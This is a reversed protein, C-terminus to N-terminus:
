TDTRSHRDYLTRRTKKMRVRLSNYRYIGIAQTAIALPVFAWGIIELLLSDFFKIFTVGAVFMTLATRLYALFTRQNALTVRFLGDRDHALGRVRIKPGLSDAPPPGAEPAKDGSQMEQNLPM